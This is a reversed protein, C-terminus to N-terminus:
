SFLTKSLPTKVRQLLRRTAPSLFLLFTQWEWSGHLKTQDSGIWLAEGKKALIFEGEALCKPLDLGGRVELDHALAELVRRMSGNRCWVQFRRHCTQYAPFCKPLDHWCIGSRLKWCVANLVERADRLSRGRNHPRPPDSILPGVLEWQEDTLGQIRRNLESSRLTTFDKQRQSGRDPKTGTHVTYTEAWGLYDPGIIFDHLVSWFWFPIDNQTHYQSFSNGIFNYNSPKYYQSCFNIFGDPWDELLRRVMGLVNRRDNVRLQEWVPSREPLSVTIQPTNYYWSLAQRAHHASSGISLWNVLAHLVKFYLHSYAPGTRPINVWGQYLVRLLHRQFDIEAVDAKWNASDVGATRIDVKCSHCLVIKNKFSQGTSDRKELLSVCAGCHPCRDLLSVLHRECITVFALRWIRRFYPERDDILCQPCFQLGSRQNRPTLHAPIIWPSMSYFDQHEFLWGEYASLCTTTVREPPTGTKDSLVTLAERDVTLDVDSRLSIKESLAIACFAYPTVGHAISLRAIWSSLLEDDRPKLHVPLLDDPSPAILM